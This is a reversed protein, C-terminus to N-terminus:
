NIYPKAKTLQNLHRHSGVAMANLVDHRNFEQHAYAKIKAVVGETDAFFSLHWRCCVEAYTLM